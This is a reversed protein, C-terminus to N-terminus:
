TLTVNIDSLYGTWESGATFRMLVWGNSFATTRTGFYIKWVNGSTTPRTGELCGDGNQFQDPLFPVYADLWGTAAGGISTGSPFPTSTNYPIKFELTCNQNNGGTLTTTAKVFNTNVWNMTVRIKDTPVNGVYFARIYARTGAGKSTGSTSAKCNLYNRTIGLNFNPNTNADGASTFNYHPYFLRGDAIQLDNSTRISTSSSWNSYPASTPFSVVTNYDGLVLRRDEDDFNEVRDGSSIPYTDIFWGPVTLPNNKVTAQVTRKASVFTTTSTGIKRAPTKVIFKKTFVFSSNVGNPTSLSQFDGDPDFIKQLVGSTVPSNTQYSTNDTPSANNYIPSNSIQTEDTFTGADDGPYYTNKYINDAQQNHQFTTGTSLYQIGSLFKKNTTVWASPSPTKLDTASTSSDTLFEIKALSLTSTPLLHKVQIFNFGRKMNADNYKVLFTGTRYWFNEFPVGTSFKSATAASLILGSTTNTSTTNVSGLNAGLDVSSVAVDNVYLVVSGTIGNGFSYTAYAPSPQSPHGNVGINLIGSVDVDNFPKVGLRRTPNSKEFLGGRTIGTGSAPTGDIDSFTTSVLGGDIGPEDTFQYSIKGSVFNTLNASLVGWSSLDPAPSPVLFKLIENFRDVATGVPTSTTFDTFLGDSYGAADEADGIVGSGSSPLNIQFVGRDYTLQYRIDAEFDNAVLETLLGNAVKKIPVYFNGDISLSVTGSNATGFSAYYVSSTYGMVPSIPTQSNSIFSFTRGNNSTPEIYRVANQVERYWKGATSSTGLFVYTAYPDTDVRLTTGNTPETTDWGGTINKVSNWVAIQNMKGSFDAGSPNQSVLYRDGNVKTSIDTADVAIGIVSDIWETTSKQGVQLPVFNNDNSIAGSAVPQLQYLRNEDYVYVMMGWARRLENITGFGEILSGRVSNTIGHIGGKLDNNEAVPFLQEQYQTKVTGLVLTGQNKTPM